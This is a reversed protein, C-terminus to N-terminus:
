KADVMRLLPVPSAPDSLAAASSPTELIRLGPTQPTLMAWRAEMTSVDAPRFRKVSYSYHQETVAVSDADEPLRV